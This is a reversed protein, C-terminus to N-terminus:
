HRNENDKQKTRNFFLQILTYISYILFLVPLSVLFVCEIINIKDNSTMNKNAQSDIGHTNKEVSTCLNSLSSISNNSIISDKIFNEKKFPQNDISILSSSLHDKQCSSVDQENKSFEIPTKDIQYTDEYKEDFKKLKQFQMKNFHSTETSKCLLSSNESANRFAKRRKLTNKNTDRGVIYNYNMKRKRIDNAVFTNSSTFEYFSTIVNPKSQYTRICKEDESLILKQDEKMAKEHLYKFLHYKGRECVRNPPNSLPNGELNLDVLTNIFRFEVPISTISNSSLDLHVLPLFSIEIVVDKLCNKRLNLSRLSIVDGIQYPLHSIMNCSVDLEVLSKLSNIEEPVRDIKNNNVILIELYPLNCISLPLHKLQNRSLDLYILSKLILISESVLTLQNNSLILRELLYYSLCENPIKTLKNSSLDITRVEDLMLKNSKLTLINEKKTCQLNLIGTRRADEISRYISM